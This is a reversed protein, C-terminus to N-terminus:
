FFLGMNRRRLLFLKLRKHLKFSQVKLVISQQDNEKKREKKEEKKCKENRHIGEFTSLYIFLYFNFLKSQSKAKVALVIFYVMAVLNWRFKM